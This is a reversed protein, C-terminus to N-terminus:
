YHSLMMSVKEGHEWQTLVATWIIVLSVRHNYSNIYFVTEYTSLTKNTGGWHLDQSLSTVQGPPLRQLSHACSLEVIFLFSFECIENRIFNSIQDVAM